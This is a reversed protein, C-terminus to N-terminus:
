YIDVDGVGFKRDRASVYNREDDDRDQQFNHDHKEPVVFDDDASASTVSLRFFGLSFCTFYMYRRLGANM